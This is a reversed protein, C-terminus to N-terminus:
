APKHRLVRWFFRAMFFQGLAGVVGIVTVGVAVRWAWLDVARKTEHVRTRITAVVLEMQDTFARGKRIANDLKVLQEETPAAGAALPVGLVDRVRQLERSASLLDIQTQSVQEPHVGFWSKLQEDQGFLDVAKQAVVVADSAATVAADAREVSGALKASARRATFRVFPNVESRPEGKREERAHRLDEQGRDLVERVFAVAKDASDVAADAKGALEDTRRNAEAKLRWVGVAAAVFIAFGLVAVLLGTVALVRRVAVWM